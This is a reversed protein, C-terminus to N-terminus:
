RPHYDVRELGRGGALGLGHGNKAEAFVHESRIHLKRNVRYWRTKHIERLLNRPRAEVVDNISELTKDREASGVGQNAKRRLIVRSETDILDQALYSLSAARYNGMRGWRADPDSTSVHTDNRYHKGRVKWEGSPNPEKTRGKWAPSRLLACHCRKAEPM